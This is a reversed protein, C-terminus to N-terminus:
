EWSGGEKGHYVALAALEGHHHLTHKLAYIYLGLRTQAWRCDIPCPESLAEDELANLQATVVSELERAYTLVEARVPLQEEPLEWWGGGFRHGWQYGSQEGGGFYFDLCDLLHMAQRVPVQFFAFGANWDQDRFREIEQYLIRFTHAYQQILDNVLMKSM